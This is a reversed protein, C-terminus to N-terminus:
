PAPLEEPRRETITRLCEDDVKAHATLRQQRSSPLCGFSMTPDGDGEGSSRAGELEDVLAHEAPHLDITEDVVTGGQGLKQALLTSPTVAALAATVAFLRAANRM